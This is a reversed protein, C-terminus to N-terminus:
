NAIRASEIGRSGFNILIGLKFGTAKLYSLLQQKFLDHLASVAKLELIIKGDIILDLRYTGLLEGKYYVSIVKQQEFPVNRKKLEIVVAREYIEESFGPGLQNHVEFIIEMIQYSLEAYLVQTGAIKKMREEKM